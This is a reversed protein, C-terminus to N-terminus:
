NQQNIMKQVIPNTEAYMQQQVDTPVNFQGMAQQQQEDQKRSRVAQLLKDAFPFNGHELMEELTIAQAQFLQMIFDNMVLRYAPTSASEAIHLDIEADRVINPDYTINKGESSGANINIYKPETYYQQVLKMNKMDRDERLEKFTEYLETLSTAANQTQQMYLAAPTGAKPAQGQLAGHVGSVDELLRLQIQLMDTLGLQTSNSVIQQPLRAAGKKSTYLIVGNYSAWEEAYDKVGWGEPIADEDIALVGKASSRTVFDQMTILRNIYRQQDIFGSVFPHALGDFFPYIKFSYPHSKHWFPTEGEYLVDGQPTLFYCYWYNDIFWQPEILRMNEPAVGAASQSAKRSENEQEIRWVDETDIKYYEGSLTDHCLYREKSEKRWIEIVRCRTPDSPVFFNLRKEDRENTLSQANAITAARDAYLDKIWEAKEKNGFSFQAMVDYIGVDHMEGILHCDWHRPDKMHNDFFIRKYNLKDNWVDMKDNRWGYNSKFAGLGTIMYDTFASMDLGWLKNLQYVYQLTISMMEGKGQEDRERAICVPETQQSQFVGSVSRVISLMRNNQLPINGQNLINERETIWGHKETKVKDSWQDGFVYRSNREAQNRFSELGQWARYADMLVDDNKGNFSTKKAQRVTDIKKQTGFLKEALKVNAIRKGM